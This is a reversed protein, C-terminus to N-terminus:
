GQGSGTRARGTRLAWAAAETRNRAGLKMLVRSVHHEVTKRSIVLREAIEVNSLGHGLLHLVESERATLEGGGKDGVRLPHGLERLLAGAEDAFRAAGIQLARELARKAETVAVQPFEAATARALAIRAAVLELPTRTEAFGTVAARLSTGAAAAEGAALQTRGDTLRSLAALYHSVGATAALHAAVERAADLDGVALEVEVRLALLRGHPVGVTHPLTREIRERAEVMDGRLLHLWALSHAAEPHEELGNLLQAAEEYRGQRLRLDALRVAANHRALVYGRRPHRMVDTLAADAEDYRGAAALIGGYKNLCIPRLSPLGTIAIVGDLGAMWQEARDVDLAVECATFLLCCAGEVVVFDQVEGACVATLAEDLLAMGEDLEGALVQYMGRAGLADYELDADGLDRAADEVTRLRRDRAVPDPDDMADFVEIWLRERRDDGALRRARSLWGGVLVHDGDLYCQYARTRAIRSADVLRGEHRYATFARELQDVAATVDGQRHLGVARAELGEGAPSLPADVSDAPLSM